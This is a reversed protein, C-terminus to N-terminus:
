TNEFDSEPRPATTRTTENRYTVMGPAAGKIKKVHRCETVDVLVKGEGRNASYYAAIAAAQEIVAEPIRRGDFKIVVHSGPVDHAHLWLDVGGGKGFTVQENQRSNRGVWIVFNDKTVVKLPASQGSGAIRKVAKGRWYGKSQLAQQVEGIDPWNAAMELDAVLQALFDLEIKTERVLRPVDELARKAKDYRAFYAQANELPSLQPDIQIVLEPQDLDYQAKLQTQGPKLAYQYALILEGSQKLIEREADDKLSSELSALKGRLRSQAEGIMDRVPEKAANYADAGVPAGYYAALAESVTDVRGWGSLSMLPYVSFAAVGEDTEAIGPQWDRAKL